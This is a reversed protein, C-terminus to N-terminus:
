GNAFSIRSFWMSIYTINISLGTFQINVIEPMISAKISSNLSSFIAESTWKVKIKGYMTFVPNHLFGLILGLYQKKNPILDKLYFRVVIM